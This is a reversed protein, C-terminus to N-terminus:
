RVFSSDPSNAFVDGHIFEIPVGSLFVYCEKYNRLGQLAGKELKKIPNGSLYLNCLNVLNKFSGEEIKTINNISLDLYELSKFSRFTGNNIVWLRNYKLYLERLHPLNFNGNEICSINNHDLSLSKITSNIFTDAKLYEIKNYQLYLREIGKPFDISTNRTLTRLENHEISIHRIMNLDAFVSSDLTILKNHRLLLYKLTTLDKFSGAEIRDIKNESLSLIYLSTLGRLSDRYIVTIHNEMLSLFRLKNLKSFSDPVIEAIKNRFLDIKKLTRPLTAAFKTDKLKNEGLILNTINTNIFADDEIEKIKNFEFTIQRLHKSIIVNKELRRICNHSVNVSSINEPLDNLMESTVRTICNRSLDIHYISSNELKYWGKEFREISSSNLPLFENEYHGDSTCGIALKQGESYHEVSILKSDNICIKISQKFSPSVEPKTENQRPKNFPINRHLKNKFLKTSMHSINNGKVFIGCSVTLGFFDSAELSKIRNYSLDLHKLNKLHAFPKRMASIKNHSLNLKELNTLSAFTTDQLKSLSNNYLNLDRTFSVNKFANKTFNKIDLSPLNLKIPSCDVEIRELTNQLDYTNQVVYVYIKAGEGIALIMPVSLLIGLWFM